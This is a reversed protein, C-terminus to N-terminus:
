VILGRMIVFVQKDQVTFGYLDRYTQHQWTHCFSMFWQVFMSCVYVCCGVKRNPSLNSAPIQLTVHFETLKGMEQALTNAERVLANAKVVEERLKVLSQKFMMERHLLPVNM